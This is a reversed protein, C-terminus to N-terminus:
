RRKRLFVAVLGLLLVTAPEPIPTAEFVLKASDLQGLPNEITSWIAPRIIGWFSVEISGRGDLLLSWDYDSFASRLDFPEPFPYTANGTQVSARGCYDDSDLDYLTAVFQADIPFPAALSGILEAKISGSWDIHINSIETFANGIDFDTAWAQGLAYQGECALPIEVTVANVVSSVASVIIVITLVFISQRKM